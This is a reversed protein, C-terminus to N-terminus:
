GILQQSALAVFPGAEEAMLEAYSGQQVVRGAELVLIRDADHVTSLRHAVVIRTCRLAALSQAVQRQAPNDLASTAEDLLVIHPEAVLARAIMIRQCQGGSLGAGGEGLVTEMGMPLAQIDEAIGAMTAAVWADNRTRGTDSLINSAIDGPLLSGRQLVVGCQARVAAADLERLDLGDYRVTGSAPRDFGLLMRLVTSKGSGSAGVIAVFEGPQARLNMGDLAPAYAGPYSFSVDDLAVAGTLEGPDAGGARELEAQLIPPIDETASQEAVAVSGITASVARQTAALALHFGALFTLIAAFPPRGALPFIAATGLLPLCATCATVRDRARRLRDALLGTARLDAACRDFARREAAFARLVTIGRLLRVRRQSASRDAKTLERQAALSAREAAMCVVGSVAILATGAPAFASGVLWLLTLNAAATMAMTVSTIAARVTEEGPIGGSLADAPVTGGRAGAFYSVPLSLLRDWIGTHATAAMRGRLRLGAVNQVAVLGALVVAAAMLLAAARGPSAGTGHVLRDLSSGVLYPVLPCLLAIVLGTGLALALERGGGRLAYRLLQPVSRVGAPLPPYLATARGRLTAAGARDLRVPVADTGTMMRYGLLSPLLAIPTEDSRRYGILPGLDRGWWHGDLRVTRTHIGSAAALAEVRGQGRTDPMSRVPQVTAGLRAAVLRLVGLTQDTGPAETGADGCGLRGPAYRGDQVTM